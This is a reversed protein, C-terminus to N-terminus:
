KEEIKASLDEITSMKKKKEELIKCRELNIKNLEVEVMQYEEQKKALDAEHSNIEM